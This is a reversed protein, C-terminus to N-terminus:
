YSVVLRIANDLPIILPNTATLAAASSILGHVANKNPIKTLPIPEGKKFDWLNPPIRLVKNLVISKLPYTFTEGKGCNVRFWVESDTATNPRKLHFKCDLKSM